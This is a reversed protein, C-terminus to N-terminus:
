DGAVDAVPLVSACRFIHVCMFGSTYVANALSLDVLMESM